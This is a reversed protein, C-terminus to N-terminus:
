SCKKPLKYIIMVCQEIKWIEFYSQPHNRKLNTVVRKAESFSTYNHLLKRLPNKHTSKGVIAYSKYRTVKPM